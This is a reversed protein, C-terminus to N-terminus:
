KHKAKRLKEVANLAMQYRRIREAPIRQLNYMLQQVDIGYDVAAQIEPLNRVSKLDKENHEDMQMSYDYESVYRYEVFFTGSHLPPFKLILSSSVALL